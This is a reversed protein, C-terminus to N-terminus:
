TISAQRMAVYTDNRSLGPDIIGAASYPQYNAMHVHHQSLTYSQPLISLGVQKQAKERQQKEEALKSRMLEKEQESRLLQARLANIQDEVHGLMSCTSRCVLLHYEQVSCM